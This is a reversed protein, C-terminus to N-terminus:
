PVKERAIEAAAKIKGDEREVPQKMLEFVREVTGMTGRLRSIMDPFAALPYVLSGLLQIFAMLGGPSMRGLLTLYGGYAICLLLPILRLGLSVPVMLAKRKEINLGKGLVKNVLTSYKQFIIDQLNYSKLMLITGATEQAVSNVEGLYSQAEKSM